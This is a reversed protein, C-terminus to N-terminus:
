CCGKAVKVVTKMIGVFKIFKDSVTEPGNVLFINKILLRIVNQINPSRLEICEHPNNNLYFAVSNYVANERVDGMKEGKIYYEACGELHIILTELFESWMMNGGILDVERFIQEAHEQYDLLM